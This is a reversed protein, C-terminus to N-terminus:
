DGMVFHIGLGLSALIAGNVFDNLFFAFFGGAGLLLMDLYM